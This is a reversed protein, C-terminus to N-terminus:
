QVIGLDSLFLSHHDGFYPIKFGPRADKEPRGRSNLASTEDDEGHSTM